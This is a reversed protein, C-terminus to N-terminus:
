KHLRAIQEFIGTGFALLLMGGGISPNSRLLPIYKLEQKINGFAFFASPMQWRSYEIKPFHCFQLM